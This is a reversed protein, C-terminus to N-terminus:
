PSVFRRGLVLRNWNTLAEKRYDDRGISAPIGDHFFRMVSPLENSYRPWPLISRPSASPGNPDLHTIFQIFYDATVGGNFPDVLDSSHAAGLHELDKFRESAADLISLFDVNFLSPSSKSVGFVYVPQKDSRSQAFYRRPAIFAMDGMLAALRKFQPSLQNREGTNFPSGQTQDSSSITDVIPCTRHYSHTVM